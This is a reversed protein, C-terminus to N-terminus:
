DDIRMSATFGSTDVPQDLLYNIAIVHKYNNYFQDHLNTAVIM